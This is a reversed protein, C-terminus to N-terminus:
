TRFLPRRGPASRQRAQQAAGAQSQQVPQDEQKAEAQGAKDQEPRDNGTDQALDDSM